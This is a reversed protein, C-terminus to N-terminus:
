ARDDQARALDHAAIGIRYEGLGRGMRLGGLLLRTQPPRALRAPPPAFRRRAVSQPRTARDHPSRPPCGRHHRARGRRPSARAFVARAPGRRRPRRTAIQVDLRRDRLERCEHAGRRRNAHQDSAAVSNAAPVVRARAASGRQRMPADAPARSRATLAYARGARLRRDRERPPADSRRSSQPARRACAAAGRGHAAATPPRAACPRAPRALGFALKAIQPTQAACRRRQQARGDFPPQAALHPRRARSRTESPAGLAAAVMTTSPAPRLARDHHRASPAPRRRRTAASWGFRGTNPPRQDRYWRGSHRTQTPWPVRTVRERRRCRSRCAAGSAPPRRAPRARAHDTRAQNSRTTARHGM